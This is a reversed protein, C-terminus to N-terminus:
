RCWLEERRQRAGEAQAGEAPCRYAHINVTNDMGFCSHREVFPQPSLGYAQLHFRFGAQGLVALLTALTQPEHILSHYEVFLHEVLHLRVACDALVETEAGEIDLKLFDVTRDLYSRLRVTEVVHNGHDGSHALRGAWSGESMFEREGASTWLARQVITVDRLGSSHVNRELVACIAPDPEFAVIEAQPHLRKFYLVSVGINAGGDIIFPRPTTAAAFRYAERVFIEQYMSLFSPGDVIEWECGLLDTITPQCPPLGALRELESQQHRYVPDSIQRKLDRAARAVAHMYRTVGPIRPTSRGPRTDPM